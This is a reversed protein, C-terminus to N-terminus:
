SFLGFIGKKKKTHEMLDMNKQMQEMLQSDTKEKEGKLREMEARLNEMESKAQQLELNKQTLENSLRTYEESNRNDELTRSSDFAQKINIKVAETIREDMREMMANMAAELMRINNKSEIFVKGTSTELFDLMESDKFNNEAQVVKIRRIRELSDETFIRHGSPTKEVNIYPDFKVCWNRLVQPKMSLREAAESTSFREVHNSNLIDQSIELDDMDPENNAEPFVASNESNESNAMIAM